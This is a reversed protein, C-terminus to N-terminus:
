ESRETSIGSRQQNVRREPRGLGPTVLQQSNLCKASKRLSNGSVKTTLEGDDRMVTKRRYRIKRPDRHEDLGATLHLKFWLFLRACSRSLGSM